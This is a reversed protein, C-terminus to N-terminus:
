YIETRNFIADISELNIESVQDVTKIKKVLEKLNHYLLEIEDAAADLIAACGGGQEYKEQSDSNDRLKNVLVRVPDIHMEGTLIVKGECEIGVCQCNNGYHMPCFRKSGFDM